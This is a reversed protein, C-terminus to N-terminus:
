RLWLGGGEAAPKGLRREIEAVGDDIGYPKGDVELVPPSGAGRARALRVDEEVARAAGTTGACRLLRDPDLGVRVATVRVDAPGDEEARYLADELEWFREQKGACSAARELPGAAAARHVVRLEEAHEGLVRRLRRHAAGCAECGHANWLTVTLKPHAAGIWPAGEAEGVRHGGPGTRPEAWYHPYRSWVAAVAVALVALVLAAVRPRRWAADLDAGLASRVGGLSRAAVLATALLLLNVTWSAMCLICWSHLVLESVLALAVSGCVAAFSLLLLLGTPWGRRRASLGAVALAGMLGYGLLGWVSVPLGLFVSWTSRAVTDCNVTESISCFSRYGQSAHVRDHIYTLDGAVGLGALCLLAFIALPGRSPRAAGDKNPEGM